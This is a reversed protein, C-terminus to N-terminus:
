LSEGPSPIIERRELVSGPRVDIRDGLLDHDIPARGMRDPLGLMGPSSDGAGWSWLPLEARLIVPVKAPVGGPNRTRRHGRSYTPTRRHGADFPSVPTKRHLLRKDLTDWLTSEGRRWEKGHQAVTHRCADETGSKDIGASRNHSHSTVRYRGTAADCPATSTRGIKMTLKPSLVPPSPRGVGRRWAAWRDGNPRPVVASAQRRPRAAM